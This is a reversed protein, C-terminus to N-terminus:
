DGAYRQELWPDGRIHYGYAEWFGPSDEDRFRIGSVWKASKWFYLHPVFLRAPGGHEPDLPQGEYTHVVLARESLVDEISLNTTYDTYTTVLAFPQSVEIGAAALFDDITVGVWSTDFKTWKTVCHIDVTVETQPLALMEAWDWEATGSDTELTFRWDGIDVSPTPEFSLM